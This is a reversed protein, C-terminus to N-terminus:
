TKQRSNPRQTTKFPVSRFKEPQKPEFASFYVLLQEIDAQADATPKFVPGMHVEKRGFDISAPLVSVNAKRAILHFGRKWHEVWSRTGEPSLGLVFQDHERFGQLVDQILTGPRDRRVPIGGIRRLIVGFLGIFISHKGIWHVRLELIFTALLGVVFDWNSTHPASIIVLKPEDPLEGTVKWGSIWFAFHACGKLFANPRRPFRPGIPIIDNV